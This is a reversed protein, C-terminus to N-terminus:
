SEGGLLRQLREADPAVILTKNNTYSAETSDRIRKVHKKFTYDVETKGWKEGGSYFVVLAAADLLTELSASRGSPLPIVAHAGPKGRVHLWLDNGRAHKFTLELNEDRTRGVLISLGERSRFTRGLWAPGRKRAPRKSQADTPAAPEPATGAEHELRELAAFDPYAAPAALRSEARAAREEFGRQRTLAEEERRQRRRALSYFREVQAAPSLQADGPVAVTEGTEYDMVTRAGNVLPPPSALASKLLDGFRRWDSERRAENVAGESQRARTRAQKLVERLAREAARLRLDFAERRVGEDIADAFVVADAVLSERIEPDVPALNGRPPTFWAPQGATEADRVTRSRALIEWRGDDHPRVLLAEPMAPILFLVLGLRDFDSGAPTSFWLTIIRERDLARCELLRAGKLQKTLALDFPSRTAGPAPKLLRDPRLAVYPHRPRVSFLLTAERSRSTLRLAWESKVYGAPMEPRAPAVIREVFMGEVAPAIRSALRALERWNLTPTM